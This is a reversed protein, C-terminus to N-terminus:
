RTRRGRVERSHTSRPGNMCNDFEGKKCVPYSALPAPAPFAQDPTMAPQFTVTAGPARTGTMGTGAPAYGGVPDMGDSPASAMPMPQSSAQVTTSPTVSQMADDTPAPATAAQDAQTAAPPATQDPTTPASMTQGPSNPTPATTTQAVAPMAIVAAAALLIFKM